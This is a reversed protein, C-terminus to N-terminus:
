NLVSVFCQFVYECTIFMLITITLKEMGFLVFTLHMGIIVLEFDKSQVGHYGNAECRYYGENEPRLSTIRLNAGSIHVNDALRGSVKYWRVEAQEATRCHLNITDTM